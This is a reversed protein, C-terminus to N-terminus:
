FETPEIFGTSSRLATEGNLVELQEAEASSFMRVNEAGQEEMFDAYLAAKARYRILDYAETMWPNDAEDDAAPPDLYFLGALRITYPQDPKAYIRLKRDAYAYSSPAGNGTANGLAMAMVGPQVRTLESMGNTRVLFVNDIKVANPLDYDSQGIVAPIDHAEVVNFYFRERKYFRLAAAIASSVSGDAVLDPRTIERAIDAKLQGLTTM